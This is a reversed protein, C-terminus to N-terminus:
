LRPSVLAPCRPASYAPQRWSTPHQIMRRGFTIQEAEGTTLDAVFINSRSPTGGEFAVRDGDPSIAMETTASQLYPTTPALRRKPSDVAPHVQYAGDQSEAHWRYAVLDGPAHALAGSDVAVLAVSVGLVWAAAGTGCGRDTM